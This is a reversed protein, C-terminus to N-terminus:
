RNILKTFALHEISAVTRAVEKEDLPPSCYKENFALMLDLCIRTEVRKAFLHGSIRAITTNRQGEPVKERVVDRIAPGKESTGSSGKGKRLLELLWAPIEALETDLTIGDHLEYYNGTIHRSPPAVIYGGDGRVDIGEGLMGASNKIIEGPYEFLIHEGGGGTKWRLTKPLQEYKKELDALSKDGNHRIDIDIVVLGSASGTVIGINKQGLGRFWKKADDINSSTNKLGQPVLNGIPHKAPATCGLNGCSCSFKEGRQIATHLPIISFGRQIYQEACKKISSKM